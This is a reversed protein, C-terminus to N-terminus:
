FLTQQIDDVGLPPLQEWKYFADKEKGDPRSKGGRISYVPWAEMDEDAPQISLLNKLQAETSLPDLWPLISTTHNILPMRFKNTGENHIKKMLANAEGTIMSCTGTVTGTQPHTIQIVMQTMAANGMNHIRLLEEKNIEPFHYLGPILAFKTGKLHIYYPVKQKWGKIARHEYFGAVMMLCRQFRLPYWVSAPEFIKEVRTNYMNNGFRQFNSLDKLLFPAVLGWHMGSLSPTGKENLYIVPVLPRTHAQVHMGMEFDVTLQPDVLLEPLYDYLSEIATDIKFSIDLCM